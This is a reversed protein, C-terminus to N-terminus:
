PYTGAFESFFRSPDIIRVTYTGFARLRVQGFKPDDLLVPAPTGWKLNVFQKTSFFYVDAKFPSEFGYKWGKLRSLVPINQTSLTHNGSDFTDAIKGQDLLIAKQSERVILKAGNKIERDGDPVKWLMLNPSHEIWEIIELFPFISSANNM